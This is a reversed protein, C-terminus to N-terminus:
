QKFTSDNLQPEHNNREIQYEIIHQQIQFAKLIPQLRNPYQIANPYYQCELCIGDHKSYPYADLHNATYVHLDPLDSYLTLQLKETKLTAMKKMDLHEFVYNHDFGDTILLNPHSLMLQTGIKKFTTFDFASHYVYQTINSSCLDENVLAVKDTEIQLEHDLIDDFGNLNFYPHHTINFLTDQDSIGLITIKLRNEILEYIISTMLNGWYGNMGDHDFYTFILKNELTTAHFHQYSFGEKGGHLSHENENKSVEFKQENLYFSGNKIRNACRGIIAGMYTDQHLLYSKPNEFSLICNIGSKKEIMQTLTAGLTMAQIKLFENELTYLKIKEM